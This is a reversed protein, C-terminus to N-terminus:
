ITYITIDKWLRVPKSRIEKVCFDLFSILKPVRYSIRKANEFLLKRYPKQIKINCNPKLYYYLYHWKSALFQYVFYAGEERRLFNFLRGPRKNSCIRYVGEPKTMLKSNKRSRWYSAPTREHPLARADSDEFHKDWLIACHNVQKRTQKQENYNHFRHRINQALNLYASLHLPHPHCQSGQNFECLHSSM